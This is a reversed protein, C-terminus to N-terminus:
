APSDRGSFLPSSLVQVARTIRSRAPWAPAHGPLKNETGMFTVDM